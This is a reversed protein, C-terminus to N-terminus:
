KTGTPIVLVEIDGGKFQANLATINYSFSIQGSKVRVGIVDTGYIAPTGSPDSPSPPVAPVFPNITYPGYAIVESEPFRSATFSFEIPTNNILLDPIINKVYVFKNRDAITMDGTELFALLPESDANYGAEHIYVYNDSGFAIPNPLVEATDTFATRTMTGFYWIAKQYNYIAYTDNETNSESPYWWWIENFATNHAGYVKWTQTYNFNYFVEQRIDCKLSRLTGDFIFFQEEGFIFVIGNAEVMANPSMVQVTSNMKFGFTTQLNTYMSYIAQDTSLLIQGRMKTAQMMQSGYTLTIFGATNTVPDPTWITPDNLTSWRILMPDFIGDLGTAGFAVLIQIEPWVAITKVTAPSGPLPVARNTITVSEAVWYCIGGDRPAAVLDNGWIDLSWIRPFSFVPGLIPRPTNYTSFGYTGVGYGFGTTEDVSGTNIEYLYYVTGGGGVVTASANGNATFQFTNADIVATVQWEGNLDLGAVTSANQFYVFDNPICGHNPSAVTITPTSIVTSFPNTLTFNISAGVIGGGLNVTSTAASGLTVTFNNADVVTVTYIGSVTAGGVVYTNYSWIQDGNSLGHNPYYINLTTSSAMISFPNEASIGTRYPTVDYIINEYIVYLKLNTGFALYKDNDFTPWTVCGRCIGLFQQNTLKLWGGIKEPVDTVFRMHDGNIWRGASDARTDETYFGEQIHLRTYPM